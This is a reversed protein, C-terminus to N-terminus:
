VQQLMRLIQFNEESSCAIRLKMALQAPTLGASNRVATDARAALLLEVMEASNDKVASHLAYKTKLMKTRKANIGSYGRSSLFEKVKRENEMAKEQEEKLAREAEEQAEQKRREAMRIRELQEEMLRRAELADKEAQQRERERREEALHEVALRDAEHRQRELRREEERRIRTEQLAKQRSEEQVQREKMARQFAEVELPPPPLANEKGDNSRRKGTGLHHDKDFRSSDVKITDSSPDAALWLNCTPRNCLVALESLM